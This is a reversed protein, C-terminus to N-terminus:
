AAGRRSVVTLLTKALIRLDLLISQRRVYEIDLRIMEEYTRENRGSVQWLGTLGPKVAFREAYWDPYVETEYAIVPRPGTLSMEGRLVNWLQPLEDLSWRRLFKGVRTVRDDGQLKYLGADDRGEGTGAERVILSHVFDKHRSEDADTRMTRFKNVLFTRRNRGLRAQRFLAPGRSDLRIALVILLIFPTLVLLALGAVTLDLGRRVLRGLRELAAECLARWDTAVLQARVAKM